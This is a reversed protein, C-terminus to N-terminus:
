RKDPDDPLDHPALKWMVLGERADSDTDRLRLQVLGEDLAAGVLREHWAPGLDWGRFESGSTLNTGLSTRLLLTPEFHEPETMWLLGSSHSRDLARTLVHSVDHELTSGPAAGALYAAVDDALLEPDEIEVVAPELSRRRLWGLALGSGVGTLDIDLGLSIITVARGHPGSDVEYIM